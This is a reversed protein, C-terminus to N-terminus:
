SKAFLFGGPHLKDVKKELAILRIEMEGLDEELIEQMLSARREEAEEMNSRKESSITEELSSRKEEKELNLSQSGETVFVVLIPLCSLAFCISSPTLCTKTKIMQSNKQLSDGRCFISTLFSLGVWFQMNLHQVKM